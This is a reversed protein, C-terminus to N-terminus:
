WSPGSGRGISPEPSRGGRGSFGIRGLEEDCVFKCLTIEPTRYQPDIM